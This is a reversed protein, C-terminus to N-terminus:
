EEPDTEKVTPAIKVEGSEVGAALSFTSPTDDGDLDGYAFATFGTFAGTSGAVKYEYSYYVPDSISFKLCKWGADSKWLALDPMTKNAKPTTAPNKAADPCMENAAAATGKSALVDGSMKESEYALKADKAIRGLMERAEGTKANSLYKRVGYIALTALVGIIAVVIMLEILTFARNLSRKFARM